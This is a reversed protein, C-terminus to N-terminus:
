AMYPMLLARDIGTYARLTCQSLGSLLSYLTHRLACSFATRMRPIDWAFTDLLKFDIRPIIKIFIHLIISSHVLTRVFGCISWAVGTNKKFLKRISCYILWYYCLKSRFTVADWHLDFQNPVTRFLAIDKFIFICSGMTPVYQQPIALDINDNGFSYDSTMSVLIIRFDRECKIQSHCIRTIGYSIVLVNKNSVNQRSYTM